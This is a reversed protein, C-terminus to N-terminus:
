KSVPRRPSPEFLRCPLAQGSSLLQLSADGTPSQGGVLRFPGEGNAQRKASKNTPNLENHKYGGDCPM